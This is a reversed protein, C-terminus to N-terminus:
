TSNAVIIQRGVAMLSRSHLVNKGSFLLLNVGVQLLDKITRTAEPISDDEGDGKDGVGRLLFLYLVTYQRSREETSCEQMLWDRAKPSKSSFGMPRIFNRPRQGEAKDQYKSNAKANEVEEVGKIVLARRRHSCPTSSEVSTGDKRYWPVVLGMARNDTAECRRRKRAM